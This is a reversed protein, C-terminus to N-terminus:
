GRRGSHQDQDIRQRARWWGWALGAVILAGVVLAVVVPANNPDAERGAYYAARAHQNEIGNRWIAFAIAAVATAAIAAGYGWNTRQRSDM